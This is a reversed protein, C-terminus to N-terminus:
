RSGGVTSLQSTTDEKVQQHVVGWVGGMECPGATEWLSNDKLCGLLRGEAREGQALSGAGAGQCGARCQSVGDAQQDSATLLFSPDTSSVPTRQLGCLWPLAM